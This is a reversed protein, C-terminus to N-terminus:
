NCNAKERDWDKKCNEACGRYALYAKILTYAGYGVGFKAGIITSAFLKSVLFGQAGIAASIARCKQLCEHYSDDAADRCPSLGFPDWLNIPNNKVYGYFNLGGAEEIPDRSLWDIVKFKTV